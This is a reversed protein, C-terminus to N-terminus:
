GRHQPSALADELQHGDRQAALVERAAGDHMDARCPKPNFAVVPERCPDYLTERSAFWRDQHLMGPPM